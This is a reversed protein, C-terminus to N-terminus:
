PAGESGLADALRRLALESKADRLEGRRCAALAEDLRVCVVAAGAEITSGDGKPEVRASPQVAVHFFYQLEGIMAPAPFSPMGLELMAQEEVHFGLEEALERTAAARPTEDPEILGAPVEWLLPSGSSASALGPAHPRMAIPPRLASRLWVWVSGAEEHHAVMVAADLARRDVIDYEFEPSRVGDRMVSLKARRLSLFGGSGHRVERVVEIEFSRSTAVTSKDLIPLRERAVTM